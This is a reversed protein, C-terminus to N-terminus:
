KDPSLELLPQLVKLASSPIVMPYTYGWRLQLPRGPHFEIGIRRLSTQLCELSCNEVGDYHYSYAFEAGCGKCIKYQWARQRTIWDAESEGKNRQLGKRWNYYNLVSQGELIAEEPTYLSKLQKVEEIPKELVEAIQALLKDEKQKKGTM